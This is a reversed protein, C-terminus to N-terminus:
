HVTVEVKSLGHMVNNIVRETKGLEFRKVRKILATLLASIEMKALHMGVCIHVGHGFGVHDANRRRIDFKDPDAWKREDRNASGWLMITRADKPVTVGDINVDKTAVRSFGQLPSELRVVENIAGSLLSPNERLADWQDPNQAFLWIASSTTFITTDLSPGMYDNMMLPPKEMGIEGRDAADWIMKAWGDPKLTERTCKTFAFNVMEKVIEFARTTRENLPGFCQFNAAAWDLMRERGEEPLGVLNSVITVPLYQALDTAADFHKRAVLREVLAEAETIILDSYSKIAAPTIPKAIVRRLAAHEPDDSCLVIGRLTDNMPKNMMVGQASTFLQWNRMAETVDKYRSLVMMDYRSLWVAPGADRLQKYLPFPDLLAADSYLDIDSQPYTVNMNM